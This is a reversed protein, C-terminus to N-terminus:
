GRKAFIRLQEADRALQDLADLAAQQKKLMEDNAAKLEELSKIAALIESDNSAAQAKPTQAPAPQNAPQLIVPAQALASGVGFVAVMAVLLLSKM